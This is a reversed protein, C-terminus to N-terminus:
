LKMGDSRRRSTEASPRSVRDLERESNASTAKQKVWVTERKSIRAVTTKQETKTGYKFRLVMM